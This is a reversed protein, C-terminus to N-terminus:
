SNASAPRRRQHHRCAPGLEDVVPAGSIRNTLLARAVDQLTANPKVTIVHTVMVDSANM